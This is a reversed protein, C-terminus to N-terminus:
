TAAAELLRARIREVFSVVAARDANPREGGRQFALALRALEADAERPLRADAERALVWAAGELKSLLLGGDVFAWARCANLVAYETSAERLAWELDSAFARLLWARPIPAFVEEPPPGTIAVGRERAMAFHMPLDADGSRGDGDVVRGDTTSLHLEFPPLEAPRGCAELTVLSLELGVGPCPLVEESLAEAIARKETATVSRSCVALVDVDSREPHFAEMAASGHLYVGLLDDGLASRCARVVDEVYARVEPTAQSASPM